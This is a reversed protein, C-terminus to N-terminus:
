FSVPTFRLTATEDYVRQENLREQRAHRAAQKEKLKELLRRNRAAEVAAARRRDVEEEWAAQEERLRREDLRLAELYDGILLRMPGDAAEPTLLATRNEMVEERCREIRRGLEEVRHRAEALAQVAEDELRKRYELVRELSFRFM